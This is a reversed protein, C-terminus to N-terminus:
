HSFPMLLLNGVVEGCGGASTSPGAEERGVPKKLAGGVGSAFGLFYVM